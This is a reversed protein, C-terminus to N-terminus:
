SLWVHGLIALWYFTRREARYYKQGLFTVCVRVRWVVVLRSACYVVIALALAIRLAPPLMSRRCFECVGSWLVSVAFRFQSPWGANHATVQNPAKTEVEM